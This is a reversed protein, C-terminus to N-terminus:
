LKVKNLERERAVQAHLEKEADLMEVVPTDGQEDAKEKVSVIPRAGTKGWKKLTSEITGLKAELTDDGTHEINSASLMNDVATTVKNIRNNAATLNTNATDREGTLTEVQAALDEEEAAAEHAADIEERTLEIDKKPQEKSGFNKELWASFSFKNKGAM